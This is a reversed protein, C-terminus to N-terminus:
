YHCHKKYIVHFHDFSKKAEEFTSDEEGEFYCYLCSIDDECSWLDDIVLSDVYEHAYKYDHYVEELDEYKEKIDNYEQAYTRDRLVTTFLFYVILAALAILFACLCIDKVKQM